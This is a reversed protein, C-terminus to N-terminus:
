RCVPSGSSIDYIGIEALDPNFPNALQMTDINGDAYFIGAEGSGDPRYTGVRSLAGDAYVIAAEESGNPVM